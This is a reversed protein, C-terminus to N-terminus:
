FLQLDTLDISSPIFLGVTYKVGLQPDDYCQSLAGLPPPPSYTIM